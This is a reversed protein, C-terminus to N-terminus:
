FHLDQPPLQVGGAAFDLDDDSLEQVANENLIQQVMQHLDDNWGPLEESAAIDLLLNELRNETNQM